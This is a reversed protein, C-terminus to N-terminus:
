SYINVTDEARAATGAALTSAVILTLSLPRAFAGLSLYM